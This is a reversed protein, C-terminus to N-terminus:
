RRRNKNDENSLGSKLLGLSSLREHIESDLEELRAFQDCPRKRVEKGTLPDRVTRTFDQELIRVFLAGRSVTKIALTKVEAYRPHNSSWKLERLYIFTIEDARRANGPAHRKWYDYIEEPTTSTLYAGSGGRTLRPGLGRPRGASRKNDSGAM